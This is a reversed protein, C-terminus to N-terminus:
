WSPPPGAATPRTSCMETIMPGKGPTVTEVSVSKFQGAGLYAIGFAIAVLAAIALWLKTLTGKALPRLPVQSVSM